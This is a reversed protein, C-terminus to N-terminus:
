SPVRGNASRAQPLGRGPAGRAPAGEEGGRAGEQELLRVALAKLEQKVVKGAPNKTLADVQFLSEPVAQRRLGRSALYSAMEEMSLAQGEEGVVFACAREGTVPDPIGVVAAEKVKPHEYLLDEVEKASINEGNRIIVDKLRGTIVVYGEGDIVGLDGTRFFGEGDFAEADLSSDVYGVMMQPAKARLEGERGRPLVEEGPGVVRLEVGPMPRGETNALKDDPDGFRGMTLIPAETLGWGSIIGAGGLEQKVEFHLMPPKPAGGGPCCRLRPFIPDKGKARQAALYAQHFATGSGAMTVGERALLPIAEDPDFREMIITAGGTMLCTILWIPGAVHTFPFALANRDEPGFELCETMGRAVAMLTADTHMAGKPDATTGSTYFVWRVPEGQRGLRRAPHGEEDAESAADGPRAEQGGAPSATPDFPPLSSPNGAPLDKACVVVQMGGPTRGAIEEAMAQYDFGRWTGPVVIMETQAQTTVFGVERERYIPLIPNQVAGLRSLAGALVFSEIWTPLMWSVVSGQRVGLDSFGAATREVAQLYEAFSMRRSHEDVLMLADPTAEARASALEVLTGAEIM